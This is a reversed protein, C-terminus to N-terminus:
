DPSHGADVHARAAFYERVAKRTTVLGLGPENWVFPMGGRHRSNYFQQRSIQLVDAIKKAGVILALEDTAESM